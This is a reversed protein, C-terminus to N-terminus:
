NPDFPRDKRHTTLRSHMFSGVSRVEIEQKVHNVYGRREMVDSEELGFMRPGTEEVIRLWKLEHQTRVSLISSVERKRGPGGLGDGHRCSDSQALMAPPSNWTGSYRTNHAGRETGM